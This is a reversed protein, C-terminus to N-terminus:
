EVELFGPRRNSSLEVTRGCKLCTKFKGELDIAIKLPLDKLTYRALSCEGAKSQFELPSLCNPCDVYLSDFMGM